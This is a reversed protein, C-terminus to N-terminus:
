LHHVQNQNDAGLNANRLNNKSKDYQEKAIAWQQRAIRVIVPEASAKPNRVAIDFWRIAESYNKVRRNLEGLLYTVRLETLKAIPFREISYAKEYYKIAKKLYEFENEDNLQRYIWATKLCVGAILVNAVKRYSMLLLSVKFYILSSEFTREKNLDLKLNSSALVEAIKKIEGPKVEDFVSKPSSYNCEPCVWIDYLYPTLGNYIQRFDTDKGSPICKSARISTAKFRNLCIPCTVDKALFQTTLM